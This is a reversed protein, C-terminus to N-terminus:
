IRRLKQFIILIPSAVFISSYTGSIVGILLTVVFWKISEGGFIALATLVFVVTLSTNLSRVVTQIVSNDLNQVFNREPHLILNERARDFTVITDHVSFGFITLIATVFLIDVEAGFFKGLLAYIGITIVVDHLLALVASVGFSLPTTPKPVKRFAWTLYIIIALLALGMSIFAQKTIEQSVSPGVIELNIEKPNYESLSTNFNKLKEASTPKFRLLYSQNGSQQLSELENETEQAAKEVISRDPLQQFELEYKTGGTFDIGLKLGFIFISFISAVFIVLSFYFFWNRIKDFNNKPM